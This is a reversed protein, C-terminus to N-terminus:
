EMVWKQSPGYRGDPYRTIVGTREYTALITNLSLPDDVLGKDVLEVPRMPNALLAAIIPDDPVVRESAGQPHRLTGFLASLASEYSEDDVVPYAGQSILRNSGASTPSTIAGPIALVDRGASLAEDATSFTGSPLGAEVVLTAKSLGAIIRNRERFMWPLPPETWDRESVIAGGVDIIRQFLQKNRKPYLCDCGGGLVVVTPSGGELAGLHAETDCGLAGGSVVTVGLSSAIRAFKRACGRGYPTAKRAGIIAIGDHLSDPNGILRLMEPPRPIKLLLSPYETSNKAILMRDGRLEPKVGPPHMGTQKEDHVDVPM